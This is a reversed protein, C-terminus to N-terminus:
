NSINKFENNQMRQIYNCIELKTRRNRSLPMPWNQFIIHKLLTDITYKRTNCNDANSIHQNAPSIFKVTKIQIKQIKKIQKNTFILLQCLDNKRIKYISINNIRTIGMSSLTKQIDKLTKYQRCMNALKNIDSNSVFSLENPINKRVFEKKYNNWNQKNVNNTLAEDLINKFIKKEESNFNCNLISEIHERVIKQTTKENINDNDIYNIIEGKIDQKSINDCDFM